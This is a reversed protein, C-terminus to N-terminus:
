LPGERLHRSLQIRYNKSAYDVEIEVIFAFDIRGSLKLIGSDAPIGAFDGNKGFDSLPEFTTMKFPIFDSGSQFWYLDTRNEKYEDPLRDMIKPDFLLEYLQALDTVGNIEIEETNQFSSRFRHCKIKGVTPIAPIEVPLDDQLGNFTTYTTTQDVDSFSTLIPELALALFMILFWTLIVAYVFYAFSLLLRHIANGAIGLNIFATGCVLGLILVAPAADGQLAAVLAVTAFPFALGILVYAWAAVRLTRTSTEVNELALESNRSSWFAM